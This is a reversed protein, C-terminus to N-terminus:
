PWTKTVQNVILSVQYGLSWWGDAPAAAPCRPWEPVRCEALDVSTPTVAIIVLWCGLRLGRVKVM